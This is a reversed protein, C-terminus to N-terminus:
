QDKKWKNMFNEVPTSSVYQQCVRSLGEWILIFVDHVNKPSARALFKRGKGFAGLPVWVSIGPSGNM